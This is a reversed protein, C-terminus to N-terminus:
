NPLRPLLSRTSSPLPLGVYPGHFPSNPTGSIALYAELAMHPPTSAMHGSGIGNSPLDYAHHTPRSCSTSCHPYSVPSICTFCFFDYALHSAYFSFTDYTHVNIFTWFPFPTICSVYQPHGCSPSVYLIRLGFSLGSCFYISVTSRPELSFM